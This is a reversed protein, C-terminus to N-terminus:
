NGSRCRPVPQLESLSGGVVDRAVGVPPGLVMRKLLGEAPVVRDVLLQIREKLERFAVRQGGLVVVERVFQSLLQDAEPAHLGIPRDEGDDFGFDSDQGNATGRLVSEYGIIDLSRVRRHSAKRWSNTAVFSM